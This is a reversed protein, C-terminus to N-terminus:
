NNSRSLERWKASLYALMIQGGNPAAYDVAGSLAFNAGVKWTSRNDGHRISVVKGDYGGLLNTVDAFSPQTLVFNRGASVDPTVGSIAIESGVINTVLENYMVASFGLLLKYTKAATNHNQATTGDVGRVITLTDTARNTVKVIERQPDDQPNSPFDTANWWTLYFPYTSPFKGGDGSLVAISTAASNYGASLTAVAFNTVTPLGM